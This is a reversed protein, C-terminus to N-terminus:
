KYLEGSDYVDVPYVCWHVCLCARDAAMEEEGTKVEEYFGGRFFVGVAFPIMPYSDASM